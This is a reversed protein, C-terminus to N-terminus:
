DDVVEVDDMGRPVSIERGVNEAKVTPVEISWVAPVHFFSLDCTVGQSRGTSIVGVEGERGVREPTTATIVCSSRKRTIRLDRNTRAGRATHKGPPPTSGPSVSASASTRSSWSSISARAFAIQRRQSLRDGLPRWSPQHRASISALEVSEAFGASTSDM